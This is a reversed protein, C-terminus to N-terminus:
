LTTTPHETCVLSIWFRPPPPVSPTRSCARATNGTIYSKAAAYRCVRTYPVGSQHPLLPNDMAGSKEKAILWPWLNPKLTTAHFVHTTSNYDGLIVCSERLLTDIVAECPRKDKMTHRGYFSAIRVPPTTPDPDLHLQTSILTGPLHM